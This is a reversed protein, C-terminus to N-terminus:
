LYMLSFIEWTVLSPCIFFTYLKLKYKQLINLVSGLRRMRITMEGYNYIYTNPEKM